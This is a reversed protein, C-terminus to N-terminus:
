KNNLPFVSFQVNQTKRTKKYLGIDLYVFLIIFKLELFRVNKSLYIRRSHINKRFFNTNKIM